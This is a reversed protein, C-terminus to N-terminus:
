RMLLPTACCQEPPIDPFKDTVKMIYHTKYRVIDYGISYAAFHKGCVIVVYKGSVKILSM